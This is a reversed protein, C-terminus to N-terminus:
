LKEEEEATLSTKLHIKLKDFFPSFLKDFESSASILIYNDLLTEETEVHVIEIQCEGTNWIVIRGMYDDSDMDARLSPKDLDTPSHSITLAFGQQHLFPEKETLWKKFESLM